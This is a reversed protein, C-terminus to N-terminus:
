RPHSVGAPDPCEAEDSAEQNQRKSDRCLKELEAVKALSTRLQDRTTLLEQQAADRQDGQQQAEKLQTRLEEITQQVYAPVHYKQVTPAKEGHSAEQEDHASSGGQASAM